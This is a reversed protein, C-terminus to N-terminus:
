SCLVTMAGVGYGVVSYWRTCYRGLHKRATEVQIHELGHHLRLGIESHKSQEFQGPYAAETDSEPFGLYKRSHHPVHYYM